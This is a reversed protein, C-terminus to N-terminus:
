ELRSVYFKKHLKGFYPFGSPCDVRTYTARTIERIWILLVSIFRKAQFLIVLLSLLTLITCTYKNGKVLYVLSRTVIIEKDHIRLQGSGM